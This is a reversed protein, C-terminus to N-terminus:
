LTVAISEISVLAKVVHNYAYHNTTSTGEITLSVKTEHMPKRLHTLNEM